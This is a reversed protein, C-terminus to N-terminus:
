LNQWFFDTVLRPQTTIHRYGDYRLPVDLYLPLSRAGALAAVNELSGWRDHRGQVYLTPITLNPATHLPEITALAPGGALRYFRQALWLVPRGLLGFLDDAFRSAFVAPSAPQVLVAARIDSTHTLSFLIANAGISFGVAGIRQPDVAPRTLLYDVAGLVDQAEQLGFTMPRAAASRGHNRLDFMLVHYGVRQLAHALQLLDVATVGAVSDALSEATTGLRNWRWGHVLIVSPCPGAASAPIFWGSLRVGDRAPFEVEEYALGADRPLAWVHRRTPRILQRALALSIGAVGATALASLGIFIRVSRQFVSM